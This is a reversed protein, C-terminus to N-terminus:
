ALVVGVVELFLLYSLLYRPGRILLLGSGMIVWGAIMTLPTEVVKM